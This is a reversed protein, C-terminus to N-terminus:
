LIYFYDSGNLVKIRHNKVSGYILNFWDNLHKQIALLFYNSTVCTSHEFFYQADDFLWPSAINESMQIFISTFKKNKNLKKVVEKVLVSKM